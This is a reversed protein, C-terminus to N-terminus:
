KNSYKNKPIINVLNKTTYLVFTMNMKKQHQPKVTDSYKIKNIGLIDKLKIM